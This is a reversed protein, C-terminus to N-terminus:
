SRRRKRGYAARTKPSHMRTKPATAPKPRKPKGVLEFLIPCGELGFATTLANELYRKYPENLPVAQNCYLRLKLPAFSTQVVYYVKFHRGDKFSLGKREMIQKFTRNLPGTPLKAQMKTYLKAAGELLEPLAYGEKASTFFIPVQPLSFITDRVFTEFKERFDRLNEYGELGGQNKFQDIAIDWKNVVIILGKGLETITSVLKKDLQTVGEKADLVLFVLDTEEIAQQTRFSSFKEVSTSIKNNPRLGATDMLCFHLQTQDPSTYDLHIQVSDRTTGPVNSVILRETKLLANALSSKGVNPRGAFCIKMRAPEKKSTNESNSPTTESARESAGETPAPGIYASIKELLTDIQRNHEASIGLPEGFGLQYFPLIDDENKPHDVKNVVLIVQKGYEKLKKAIITDLPTCSGRGDVVFIILDAAQIALDAQEKVAQDIVKLNSEGSDLGLGGTDMLVFHQDVEAVIIDRTVGAQDHVISIRKKVLRNFLRSKGVNPRGVLAVTKLISNM